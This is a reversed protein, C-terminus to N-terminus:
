SANGTFDKSALWVYVQQGAQKGFYFLNATCAASGGDLLWASMGGGLVFPYTGMYDGQDPTAGRAEGYVLYGKGDVFMAYGSPDTPQYCLVEVRPDKVNGYAVAFDVEQGLAPWTSSVAASTPQVLDISPPATNSAGGGGNGGGKAFVSGAGAPRIGALASAGFILAAVIALLLVAELAAGFTRRAGSAATSFARV